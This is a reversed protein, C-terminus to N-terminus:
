AADPVQESVEATEARFRLWLDIREHKARIFGEVESCNNDKQIQGALDFLERLAPNRITRQTTATM